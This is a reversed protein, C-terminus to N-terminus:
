PFSGQTRQSPLGLTMYFSNIWLFPGTIFLSSAGGWDTGIGTESGAEQVTAAVVGNLKSATCNYRSFINSVFSCKPKLLTLPCMVALSELGEETLTEPWKVMLSAGSWSVLPSSSPALMYSWCFPALSPFSKGPWLYCLLCAIIKWHKVHSTM